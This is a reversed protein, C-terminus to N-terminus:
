FLSTVFIFRLRIKEYLFLKDVIVKLIETDTIGIKKDNNKEDIKEDNKVDDRM